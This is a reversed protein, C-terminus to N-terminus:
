KAAQWFSAVATAISALATVPLAWMFHEVTRVRGALERLDDGQRETREDVRLLLDHDDHSVQAPIRVAGM